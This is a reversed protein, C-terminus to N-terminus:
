IFVGQAAIKMGQPIGLIELVNAEFNLSVGSLGLELITM